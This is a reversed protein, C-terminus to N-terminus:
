SLGGNIPLTVSAKAGRREFFAFAQEDPRMSAPLSDASTCLVKM